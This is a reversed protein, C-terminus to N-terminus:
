PWFSTYGSRKLRQSMFDLKRKSHSGQWFVGFRSSWDAIIDDIFSAEEGVRDMGLKNEDGELRPLLKTMAIWDLIMEVPQGSLSGAILLSENITRYAIRFSTQALVTNWKELLNLVPSLISSLLDLENSNTFQSLGAWPIEIEQERLPTGGYKSFDIVDFEITLARDLVKRSFGHTTEDM